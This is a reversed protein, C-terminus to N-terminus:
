RIPPPTDTPAGGSRGAAQQSALNPLGSHVGIKELREIDFWEGSPRKDDKSLKTPIVLAQNCGTWYDIIGSVVGEYKTVADRVIDGNKIM